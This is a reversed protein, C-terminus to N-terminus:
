DTEFEYHDGEKELGLTLTKPTTQVIRQVSRIRYQEDGNRDTVVAIQDAEIGPADPVRILRDINLNVANAEYIRSITLSLERFRLTKFLELTQTPMGGDGDDSSLKYIKVIGDNFSQARDKDLM